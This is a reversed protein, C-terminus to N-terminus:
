LTKSYSTPKAADLDSLIATDLKVKGKGSRIEAYTLVDKIAPCRNKEM